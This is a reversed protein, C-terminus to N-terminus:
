FSLSQIAYALYSAFEQQYDSTILKEKEQYNSLFGCEVLVGPVKLKSYMYTTSPIPKIERDSGVKENLVQQLHGAIEKSKEDNKLYFVQPGYYKKNNLVNLHISIYLDTKSQNIKKIRQDFDSKKRYYANPSGLDYDGDRTLSVLAGYKGLESELYKSIALNINKEYVDDVVSGPDVGGHGPDIYIVKGSLPLHASVVVPLSLLCVFLFFFIFIILDYRKM